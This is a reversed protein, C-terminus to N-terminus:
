SKAVVELGVKPMRRAGEGTGTWSFSCADLYAVRKHRDIKAILSERGKLPGFTVHLVGNVIEGLSTEVTRGNGGLTQILEVEQAALTAPVDGMCVLRHFETVLNLQTKLLDTNPTCVLVYGPFLVDTRVAWVGNQKFPLERKLVFTDAVASSGCVREIRHAM